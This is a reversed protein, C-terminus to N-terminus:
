VSLFYVFSSIIMIFLIMLFIIGLQILVPLDNDIIEKQYNNELDKYYYYIQKAVETDRTNMNLMNVLEIKINKDIVIFKQIDDIIYLNELKNSILLKVDENLNLKELEVLRLNYERNTNM